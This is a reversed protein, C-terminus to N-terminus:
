PDRWADVIQVVRKTVAARGVLTGPGPPISAARKIELYEPDVSFGAAFRYLGDELRYIIGQETRCLSAATEVVGQLVSGLDLHSRSILSLVDATAQEPKLAECVRRRGGGG